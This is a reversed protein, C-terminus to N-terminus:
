AEEGSAKALLRELEDKEKESLTALDVAGASLDGRLAQVTLKKGPDIRAIQLIDMAAKRKTEPPTTPDVMVKVLTARAAVADLAFLGVVARQVIQIIWPTLLWQQAKQLTVGTTVAAVEIDGRANIYAEIFEIQDDALRGYQHDTLVGQLASERKGRIAVVSGM